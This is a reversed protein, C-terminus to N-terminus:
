LANIIQSTIIKKMEIYQLGPCLSQFQHLSFKRGQWDVPYKLPQKTVTACHPQVIPDLQSELPNRSRKQLLRHPARGGARLMAASAQAISAIKSVRFPSQDLCIQRRRSVATSAASPRHTPDDLIDEVHQSGAARPPEGGVAKRGPTRDVCPERLKPIAADELAQVMMHDLANADTLAM